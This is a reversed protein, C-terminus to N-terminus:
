NPQCYNVNLSLQAFHPRADERSLAAALIYLIDGGHKSMTSDRAVVVDHDGRKPQFECFFLDLSLLYWFVPKDRM